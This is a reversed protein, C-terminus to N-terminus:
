YYNTGASGRAPPMRCLRPYRNDGMVPGSPSHSERCQWYWEPVPPSGAGWASFSAYGGPVVGACGISCAVQLVVKFSAQVDRFAPHDSDRLLEFLAMETSTLAVNMSMMRRVGVSKNSALRSGVADEVVEVAYGM